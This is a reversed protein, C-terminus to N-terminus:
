DTNFINFVQFGVKFLCQRLQLLLCKYINLANCFKLNQLAKKQQISHISADNMENIQRYQQQEASFHQFILCDTQLKSM